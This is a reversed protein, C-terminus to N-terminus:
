ARRRLVPEFEAAAIREVLEADSAAQEWARRADQYALYAARRRQRYWPLQQRAAAPSQPLPVHALSTHSALAM